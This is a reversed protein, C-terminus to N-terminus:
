LIKFADADKNAPFRKRFDKLSKYNLEITEVGEKNPKHNSLKAGLIDLM